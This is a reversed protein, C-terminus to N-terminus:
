PQQLPQKYVTHLRPVKNTIDVVEYINKRNRSWLKKRGHPMVGLTIGLSTLPPNLQPGSTATRSRVKPVHSHRKGDCYCAFEPEGIIVVTADIPWWPTGRYIHQAIGATVFVRICAILSLYFLLRFVHLTMNPRFICDSVFLQEIFEIGPLGRM